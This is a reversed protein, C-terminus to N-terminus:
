GPASSTGTEQGLARAIDQLTALDFGAKDLIQAGIGEREALLGLLIHVSSVHDHSLVSAQERALKLACQARHSFPLEVVVDTADSRVPVPHLQALDAAISLRPEGITRPLQGRAVPSLRAVKAELDREVRDVARGASSQPEALIAALLHEGGVYAQGSQSAEQRARVLVREADADLPLSPTPLLAQLRAMLQRYLHHM